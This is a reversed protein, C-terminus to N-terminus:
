PRRLNWRAYDALGLSSDPLAYFDRLVKYFLRGDPGYQGDKLVRAMARVVKEIWAQADRQWSAIVAPSPRCEGAKIAALIRPLEFQEGWKDDSGRSSKNIGSVYDLNFYRNSKAYDALVSLIRNLEEDSLLMEADQAGNATGRYSTDFCHDVVNHVLMVLDHSKWKEYQAEISGVRSHLYLLVKCLRELGNAILLMPVLILELDYMGPARMVFLGLRVLIAGLQMEELLCGRDAAMKMESSTRSVERGHFGEARSRCGITGLGQSRLVSHLNYPSHDEGWGPPHSHCGRTLSEVQDIAKLSM